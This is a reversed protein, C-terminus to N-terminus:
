SLVFKNYGISIVCLNSRMLRPMACTYLFYVVRLLEVVNEM